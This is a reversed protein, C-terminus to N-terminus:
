ISNAPSITASPPPASNPSPFDEPPSSSRPAHFQASDTFVTFGDSHKVEKIKTSTFVQVSAARCEEELLTVIEQASRDCFLQGLTKEHFTIRHKKVLAIFDDPTYRALASKRLSSERLHFEGAHL